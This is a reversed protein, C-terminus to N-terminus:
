LRAALLLWREATRPGVHEPVVAELERREGEHPERPNGREALKYHTGCLPQGNHLLSASRSCRRIKGDARSEFVWECNTPKM